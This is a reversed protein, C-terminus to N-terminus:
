WTTMSFIDWFSYTFIFLTSMQMGMSNTGPPFTKTSNNSSWHYHAHTHVNVVYNTELTWVDDSMRVTAAPLASLYIVMVIIMIMM